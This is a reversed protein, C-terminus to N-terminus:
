NGLVVLLRLCLRVLWWRQVIGLRRCEEHVGYVPIEAGIRGSVGTRKFMLCLHLALPDPVFESSPVYGEAKDNTWCPPSSSAVRGQLLESPFTGSAMAAVKGDVPLGVLVDM